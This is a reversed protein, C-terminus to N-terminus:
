SYTKLPASILDGVPDTVGVELHDSVIDDLREQDLNVTLQDSETQLTTVSILFRGDRM